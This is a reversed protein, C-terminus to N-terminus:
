WVVTVLPFRGQLKSTSSDVSSPSFALDTMSTMPSWPIALQQFRPKGLVRLETNFQLEWVYLADQSRADQEAFIFPLEENMRDPPPSAKFAPTVAPSGAVPAAVAPAVIAPQYPYADLVERTPSDTTADALAACGVCGVLWILSRFRHAKM